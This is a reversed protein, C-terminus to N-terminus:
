APSSLVVDFVLGNSFLSWCRRCGEGDRQRDERTLVNETMTRSGGNAAKTRRWLSLVREEGSAGDLHVRVFHYGLESDSGIWACSIRAKIQLLFLCSIHHSHPAEHSPSCIPHFVTANSSSPSLCLSPQHPHRPHLARRIPEAEVYDQRRRSRMGRDTGDAVGGDALNRFPMRRPPHCPRKIDYMFASQRALRQTRRRSGRSARRDTNLFSM